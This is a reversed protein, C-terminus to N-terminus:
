YLLKKLLIRFNYPNNIDNSYYLNYINNLSDNIKTINFINDIKFKDNCYNNTNNFLSNITDFHKILFYICKSIYYNLFDINYDYLNNIYLIIKKYNKNINKMLIPDIHLINSLDKYIDELDYLINLYKSNNINDNNINKNYKNIIISSLGIYEYKYDINIINLNNNYKNLKDYLYKNDYQTLDINKFYNFLYKIFDDIDLKKLINITDNLKNCNYEFLMLNNIINYTDTINSLNTVLIYFYQQLFNRYKNYKYIIKCIYKIKYMYDKIIKQNNLHMKDFSDNINNLIIRFSYFLIDFLYIIDNSKDYLYNIKDYLNNINTKINNDISIIKKSLDYNDDYYKKIIDVIQKYVNNNNNYEKLTILFSKLLTIINNNFINNVINNLVFNYKFHLKINKISNNKISNNKISNNKISDFLNDNFYLTNYLFHHQIFNFNKNKLYYFCVFLILKKISIISSDNNSNIVKKYETIKSTILTDYSILNNNM